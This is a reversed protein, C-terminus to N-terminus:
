QSRNLSLRKVRLNTRKQVSLMKTPGRDRRLAAETRREEKKNTGTKPKKKEGRTERQLRSFSSFLVRQGAPTPNLPCFNAFVKEKKGGLFFFINKNAETTLSFYLLSSIKTKGKFIKKNGSEGLWNKDSGPRLTQPTNTQLPM